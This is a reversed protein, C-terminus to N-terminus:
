MVQQRRKQAAEEPRGAEHDIGPQQPPYGPVRRQALWLSCRSALLPLQRRICTVCSEYEWAVERAQTKARTYNFCRWVGRAAFPIKSTWRSGRGFRAPWGRPLTRPAAAGRF